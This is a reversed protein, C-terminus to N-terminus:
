LDVQELKKLGLSLDDALPVEFSMHQSTVPHDFEIRSAHLFQRECWSHDKRYRKSGVYHKDGVIPHKLHKLVIRLQHTRGTKPHLEVLSYLQNFRSRYYGVVQYSTTSVKGGVMVGFRTRDHTLRGLPLSITSSQPRLVDYVLAHYTKSVQHNKFQGMLQFMTEPKKAWLMVGSTDKDLRHVMGSRSLFEQDSTNRFLQPLTQEVWDQVTLGKVSEARNVTLSQPKSLVLLHDDEFIVTPTEM